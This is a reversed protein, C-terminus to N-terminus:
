VYAGGNVQICQGTIFSAAPSVLFCVANAVDEPTCVRKIFNREKMAEVQEPTVHQTMDTDVYSPNVCNATINYQGLERALYKTFADLAGKSAGYPARVGGTNADISSINIVRGADSLKLKELMERITIFAGRVNTDMVKDWIYLDTEEFPVPYNLGANNVIIDIKPLSDTVKFFGTNSLPLSTVDWEGRTPALVHADYSRLQEVIVKGIGRSGGTVLAIRGQLYNEKFTM